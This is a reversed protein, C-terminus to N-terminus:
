IKLLNRTQEGDDTVEPDGGKLSIKRRTIPEVHRSRKMDLLKQQISAM